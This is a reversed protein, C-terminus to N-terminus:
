ALALHLFERDHRSQPWGAYPGHRRHHRHRVAGAGPASRPPRLPTRLRAERRRPIPRAEDEDFWWRYFTRPDDFGNAIAGALEPIGRRRGAPAPRASGPRGLFSNTWGSSGSRVAAGSAARLHAADMPPSDPPRWPPGPHERSLRRPMESRQELGPRHRITSSWHTPWASCQRAPPLRRSPRASPRLSDDAYFATQRRHAPRRPLARMGRPVFRALLKQCQELHEEPTDHRGLLGDTRRPPRRVGHHRLTRQHHPRPVVFYEGVGPVLSFHFPPTWGGAPAHRERLDAGARAASPRFRPANPTASSSSASRARAADLGRRSRAYPRVMRPRQCGGRAARDRRRRTRSSARVWAACKVRQDVSHAPGELPARWSVDPAGHPGILSFAIGAIDPASTRGSIWVSNANARCRRTSCASAPCSRAAVYRTPTATPSWPSTMGHAQLGLALQAGAQGAGVVAIRRM